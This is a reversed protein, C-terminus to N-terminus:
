NKINKDIKEFFIELRKLLEELGLSYAIDYVAPGYESGTLIIRLPQGLDKFNIKETEIIKDFMKKLFEKEINKSKKIQSYISKIINIKSKDIKEKENDKLEYFFIYKSNNYIDELCKSKNKLFSMSKEITSYYQESIKKKYSESYQILRELLIKDNINKIYFENMSKIRDFDLKSPSKGINKLNFLQISEEESFIEKNEYSWGLRLLYNKLAEPFIGIKKYDEVTSADDRKSLKKGERSHILPIHAYEPIKWGMSEFIQIQKFANIKHDDGRIVHSIRMQYDDVAASLNYTPKNDKRLIVFDEITNNRIEVDGQVLDKLITKGELKSKFRVVFNKNSNDEKLERCKRNYTYPIKKKLSIEKEKELEEESCYCKYANGNALLKKAVEIHTDINKSQIYPNEDWDIKLWKLTSLIQDTYEDKSRAVDTDEIRLLFKGKQNKSFLWNFLATRAGGIHLNGTPSPAFRTIVTSNTNM